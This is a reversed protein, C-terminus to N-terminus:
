LDDYNEVERMSFIRNSLRNVVRDIRNAAISELNSELISQVVTLEDKIIRRKELINKVSKYEKYGDCGNKWKTLEILHLCNSLDKDANSLAQLLEEKREAAEKALNNCNKVREVWRTVSEPVKYYTSVIVEEDQNEEKHLIEEPLVQIKFHFRKLSRPLNDLINKAKSHEFRQAAQRTCTEPSGKDNLRIYVKKNPNMIVCDM